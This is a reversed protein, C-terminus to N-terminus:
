APLRAHLWLGLPERSRRLLRRAFWRARPLAGAPLPDARIVGTRVRTLGSMEGALQLAPRTFFLLHIPPLWDPRTSTQVSTSSWNPVTCFVQGGPRLLKQYTGLVDRPSTLHELVEFATVVDFREGQEILQEVTCARLAFPAFQRGIQIAVESVDVGTVNWGRGHAAHGFRGVGCGVDLLRAGTVRPVQRFFARYTPHQALEEADVTQLARVQDSEYEASHYVTDYDVRVDFADPAFRLTCRPCAFLQYGGLRTPDHHTESRCVPCEFSSGPPSAVSPSATRESM